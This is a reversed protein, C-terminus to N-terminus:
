SVKWDVAVGGSAPWAGSDPRLHRCSLLSVMHEGRSSLSCSACLVCQDARHLSPFLDVRGLPSDHQLGKHATVPEVVGSNRADWRWAKPRFLLDHPAIDHVTAVAQHCLWNPHSCAYFWASLAISDYQRGHAHSAPCVPECVPFLRVRHRERQQLPQWRRQQVGHAQGDGASCAAAAAAHGPLRLVAPLTTLRSNWLLLGASLHGCRLLIALQYAKATADAVCRCDSGAAAPRCHRGRRGWCHRRHKVRQGQPSHWGRSHLSQQDQVLHLWRTSALWLTISQVAAQQIHECIRVFIGHDAACRPLFLRHLRWLCAAPALAPASPLLAGSVM